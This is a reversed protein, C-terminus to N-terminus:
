LKEKELAVLLDRSQSLYSSLETSYVFKKKSHNHLEEVKENNELFGKAVNELKVTFDKTIVTTQVTVDKIANMDVTLQNQSDYIETFYNRTDNTMTKTTEIEETRKSIENSLYMIRNSIKDVKSQIEVLSRKSQDALKRVEDAVVAFGKGAEGARAAEIAANLALLNTQDSIGNIVNAINSIEVSDDKLTDITTELEQFVQSIYGMQNVLNDISANGEEVLKCNDESKVIVEDTIVQINQASTIIQQTNEVVENLLYNQENTIEGFREIEKSIVIDQESNNDISHELLHFLQKLGNLVKEKEEATLGNVEEVLQDEDDIRYFLKSLFSM